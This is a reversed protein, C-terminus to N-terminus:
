VAIRQEEHRAIKENSDVGGTPNVVRQYTRLIQRASQAWSFKSARDLGRSKMTQRLQNDTLIRHMAQALNCVDHPEILMAADGVVEPLSSVNSTIVPTGCAMAELPPLGFGEYLSPFVFAEAASYLTSLDTDEVYGTFHVANGLGLRQITEDIESAGWQRKGGLVLQIGKQSQQTRAFAELLRPVNKRANLGGVYLLYPVSIGYRATVAQRQAADLIPRFRGDIGALVVSIRQHDLGLFTELDRRSCESDTIVADARRAVYPLHWRYRWNDLLNHAEPYVYAFADHITVIFPVRKRLSVFPAIGNPDHIADLQYRYVLEPLMLDGITLLSPLLHCGRLRHYEFAESLGQVDEQETALVVIETSNPASSMAKLLEIAYRGIGTPSRDLGYTLYGIRV